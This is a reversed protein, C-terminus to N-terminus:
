VHLRSSFLNLWRSELRGWRSFMTFRNSTMAAARVANLAPIVGDLAAHCNPIALDFTRLANADSACNLSEDSWLFDNAQGVRARGRFATAAMM